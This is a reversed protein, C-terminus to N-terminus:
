KEAANWLKNQLGILCVLTFVFPYTLVRGVNFFFTRLRNSM